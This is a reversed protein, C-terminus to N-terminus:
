VHRALREETRRNRLMAIRDLTKEDGRLRATHEVPGWRDTLVAGFAIARVKLSLCIDFHTWSAKPPQQLWKRHLGVRDAMALLARVDESWMHCMWMRGFRLRVDDVYVATGNRDTM